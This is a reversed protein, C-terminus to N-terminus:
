DLPSRRVNCVSEDRGGRNVKVPSCSHGQLCTDLNPIGSSYRGAIIDFFGGEDSLIALREGNDAMMTGLKEPTVDQAWLSPMSPLTPKTTELHIIEQKMREIDAIDESNAQKSRLSKIRADTTELESEIPLRQAKAAECLEQEKKRLPATMASHVATKRNGSQLAAITWLCLPELYGPEMEAEFVRQCSAAVTALGMLAPLEVPTETANAAAGAMRGFSEPFNDLSLETLCVDDLPIVTVAPPPDASVTTTNVQGALAHGNTTTMDTEPIPIPEWPSRQTLLHALDESTRNMAWVSLDKAGDALTLKSVSAAYGSLSLAVQNAHKQGAYKQAPGDIDPLIVAHTGRLADSYSDKWKGAGM